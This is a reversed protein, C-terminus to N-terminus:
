PTDDVFHFLEGIDLLEMGERGRIKPRRSIWHRKVEWVTGDPATVRQM